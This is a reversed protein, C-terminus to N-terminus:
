FHILEEYLSGKHYHCEATLNKWTFYSHYFSQQAGTLNDLGEILELYNSQGNRYNQAVSQYAKQELSVLDRHLLLSERQEQLRGMLSNIQAKLDLAKQKLRLGKMQKQVKAKSLRSKQAGWDWLPYSLGLYISWDSQFGESSGSGGSLYDSHTLIWSGNLSVQLGLQRHSIDLDKQDISQSLQDIRTQPHQIIKPPNPIQPTPFQSNPKEWSLSLPGNVWGVRAKIEELALDVALVRQKLALQARQLKAKFRLYEMRTKEGQRYGRNVRQFQTQVLQLQKEENLKLMFKLQYDHFRKIIDLVFSSQSWKLEAETRRLNLEARQHGLFNLGNNYFTEKLGLTASAAWPNDNSGSSNDAYGQSTSLSLQPLFGSKAIKLDNQAVKLHSKQIQFEPSNKLGFDVLGKLTLAGGWVCHTGM